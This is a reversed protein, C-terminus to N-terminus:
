HLSIITQLLKNLRLFFNTNPYGNLIFRNIQSPGNVYIHHINKLIKYKDLIKHEKHDLITHIPFQALNNIIYRPPPPYSPYSPPNQITPKQNPPTHSNHIIYQPLLTRPPYHQTCPAPHNVDVARSSSRV